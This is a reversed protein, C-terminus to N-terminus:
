PKSTSPDQGGAQGPPFRPPRSVGAIHGHTDNILKLHDIDLLLVAASTRDRGVREILEDLCPLLYRRNYLGTLEDTVTISLSRVYNQHLRHQLRKHRIQAGTRVLLENRDVPRILYDTAGLDLGKALRLLDRDDGILLIPLQRFTKDARCQTVLRLPDGSAM